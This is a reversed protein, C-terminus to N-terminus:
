VFKNKPMANLHTPRTNELIKYFNISISVQKSSAISPYCGSPAFLPGGERLPLAYLM